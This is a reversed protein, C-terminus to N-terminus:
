RRFYNVLEAIGIVYEQCYGKIIALEEPAIRGDAKAAKYGIALTKIQVERSVEDLAKKIAPKIKPLEDPYVFGADKMKKQLSEANGFSFYERIIGIESDSPDDDSFAVITALAIGAEEVSLNIERVDEESDDADHYDHVEDIERLRTKGYREAEFIGFGFTVCYRNLLTMENQDIVGDAKALELAAAMTRLQFNRDAELLVPLFYQETEHIDGPYLYGSEELKRQVALATAHRYYKRLVAGESESPDDDSFSIVATLTLAAEPISFDITKKEM